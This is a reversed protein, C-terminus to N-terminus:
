CEGGKRAELYNEKPRRKLETTKGYCKTVPPGTPTAPSGAPSGAEAQAAGGGDTAFRRGM